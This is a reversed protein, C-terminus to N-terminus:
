CFLVVWFVMGMVAFIDGQWMLLILLFYAFTLLSTFFNLVNCFLFFSYSIVLHYLFSKSLSSPAYIIFLSNLCLFPYFLTLVYTFFSLIIAFHILFFSSYLILKSIIKKLYHVLLFGNLFFVPFCNLFVCCPWYCHSILM